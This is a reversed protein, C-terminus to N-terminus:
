IDINKILKENHYFNRFMFFQRFSKIYLILFRFLSLVIYRRHRMRPFMSRIEIIHCFLLVSHVTSINSKKQSMKMKAQCINFASEM